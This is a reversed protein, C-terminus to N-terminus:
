AVEILNLTIKYYDTAQYPTMFFIADAQIPNKTYDFICKFTRGPIEVEEENVYRENTFELTYIQDPTEAWALLDLVKQRTVYVANSGSELTIPRGALKTSTQVLLAGTLLYQHTSTTASWSFEDKWELHDTLEISTETGYKKLKM